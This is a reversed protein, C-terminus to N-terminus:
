MIEVEWGPGVDRLLRIMAAPEVAVCGLTPRHDPRDLHLFIASGRGPVPPSDNHGIVLLLDYAMDERLLREHSAAFGSAAPAKVWRNYAPHGPADCWLDDAGIPHFVLRSRPPPLRDARWLGFRLPYIGRPTAGDGERKSTAPLVGGRGIRCGVEHLGNEGPGDECGAWALTLKRTDVTIRM